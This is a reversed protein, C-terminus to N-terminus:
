TRRKLPVPEAGTLKEFHPKEVWRYFVLIAVQDFGAAVLGPWSGLALAVGYTHLYGLTYMPNKVYRYPGSRTPALGADPVFFNHWYYAKAGLQAAAWFKVGVGLLVLLVGATIPLIPSVDLRLSQRTVVCVLIFSLADNLMVAAAVRRFRRFGQEVGHRRTYHGQREERRLAFGVYGVYALRSALHFALAVLAWM